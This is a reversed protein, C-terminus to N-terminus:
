IERGNKESFRKKMMKQIFIEITIFLIIIVLIGIEIHGLVKSAKLYGLGSIFLYGVGSMVFTWITVGIVHWFIFKKFRIGAWGSSLMTVITLGVTYKVLLIIKIFHRHLYNRFKPLFDLKKELWSSLKTNKTFRGFLFILSDGGIISIFSIVWVMPWSIYGKMALLASILIATEGRVIFVLGLIFYGYFPNTMLFEGITTLLGPQTINEM